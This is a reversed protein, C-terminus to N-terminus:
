KQNDSGWNKLLFKKKKKLFSKIPLPVLSSTKKKTDSRDSTSYLDEVNASEKVGILVSKGPLFAKKEEHLGCQSHEVVNSETIVEVMPKSVKHEKKLTDLGWM